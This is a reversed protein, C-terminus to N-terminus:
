KGDSAKVVILEGDAIKQILESKNKCDFRAAIEALKAERELRKDPLGLYVTSNQVRPTKRPMQLM